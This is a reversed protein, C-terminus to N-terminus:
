RFAKGTSHPLPPDNGTEAKFLDILADRVKADLRPWCWQFFNLKKKDHDFGALVDKLLAYSAMNDSDM